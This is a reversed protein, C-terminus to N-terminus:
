KIKFLKFPNNLEIKSKAILFIILINIILFFSFVILNNKFILFYILFSYLFSFLAVRKYFVGIIRLSHGVLFFLNVKTKGYFRKSRRAYVRKIKSNKLVAASYAHWISNDALIKKLNNIHFCSFNGFSIWYGTLIATLLIHLKYGYKIFFNENRNIRCSVIVYDKHNNAMNLMNKIESPSDEGDGDMVTIFKINKRKKIYNLAFAIAKQSGINKNLRLAEIKKINNLNKKIIKMKISSFDDVIFISTFTKNDLFSNIKLLLKNFSMWDNYVPILILNM